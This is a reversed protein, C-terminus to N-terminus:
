ESFYYTWFTGYEIRKAPFEQELWQTVRNYEGLFNVHEFSKVVVVDPYKDPNKEWYTLLRESFTPTSITSDACIEVDKYLYTTATLTPYSLVLVRDGDHIFRQWELYSVNAVYTGERNVIGKLPGYKAIGNVGFISDELVNTPAVMWGNIYFANRFIMISCFLLIPIMGKWAERQDQSQEYLKKLPIMCGCIGPILYPLSPFVGLDSLLLTALFGGIGVLQGTLFIMNEKENLYKAALWAAIEVFLYLIFFHHKTGAAEFPLHGLYGLIYFVLFWCLFGHFKKRRSWEARGGKSFRRGAWTMIVACAIVIFIYKLDSLFLLADGGLLAFRQGLGIAHSKDGSWIYYLNRLLQAPNGRMFHLLYLVAGGACVGTFICIDRGKQSSYKWILVICAMWVIVCSPYALVELCLFIAGLILWKKKNTHFYWIFSCMLLLGFWIQLNAFDPLVVDKPYSNLLFLLATFAIVKDSFKRLTGYVCLAVGTKCLVGVTNAYIMIGTTSGTIKLFLLEFFALFFASTQHAEWMQSFMRDGKLIRYAMTVQYEADVQCSTFINKVNILVSGFLLIIAIAVVWKPYKKEAM